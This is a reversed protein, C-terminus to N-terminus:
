AIEAEEDLDTLDSDSGMLREQGDGLALEGKDMSTTESLPLTDAKEIPGGDGEPGLGATDLKLSEFSDEESHLEETREKDKKRLLEYERLKLYVNDEIYIDKDGALRDTGHCSAAHKWRCGEHETLTVRTVM